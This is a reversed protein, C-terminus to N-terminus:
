SKACHLRALQHPAIPYVFVIANAGFTILFLGDSEEKVDKWLRSACSDLSLKRNHGGRFLQM